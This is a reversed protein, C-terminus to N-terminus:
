SESEQTCHHKRMWQNMRGLEMADAQEDARHDRAEDHREDAARQATAPTVGDGDFGKSISECKGQGHRQNSEPQHPLNGPLSPRLFIQILSKCETKVLCNRFFASPDAFPRSFM